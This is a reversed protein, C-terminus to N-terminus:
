FIGIQLHKQACVASPKSKESSDHTKLHIGLSIANSFLKTCLKCLSEGEPTHESKEHTKIHYKFRSEKPFTKLCM